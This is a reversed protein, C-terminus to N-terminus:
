SWQPLRFIRQLTPVIAGSVIGYEGLDSSVLKTKGAEFPLEKEELEKVFRDILHGQLQQTDSGIVLIGPEILNVAHLVLTSLEGAAKAFADKAIEDGSEFAQIFGEMDWDVKHNKKAIALPHEVLNTIEGAAGFEGHYPQGNLIIGSGVGVVDYVSEHFRLYLFVLNEVGQAFDCLSSAMGGAFSDNLIDTQVKWRDTCLKQFAVDKWNLPKSWRITGNAVNLHGPVAVGVGELEQWDVGAESLLRSGVDYLLEVAQEPSEPVFPVRMKKFLNGSLDSIGALIATDNLEFGLARPQERKLSIMRPARGGSTKGPGVEEVLGEEILEKVVASVTPPRIATQKALEARSSVGTRRIWELILHRNVVRNLQPKGTLM